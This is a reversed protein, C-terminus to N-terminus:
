ALNQMVAELDATCCMLLLFVITAIVLLNHGIIVEPCSVTWRICESVFTVWWQAWAVRKPAFCTCLTFFNASYKVIPHRLVPM